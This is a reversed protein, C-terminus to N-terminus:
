LLKGEKIVRGTIADRMEWCHDCVIYPDDGDFRFHHICITIERPVNASM